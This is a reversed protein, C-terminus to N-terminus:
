SLSLLDPKEVVLNDHYNMQVAVAHDRANFSISDCDGLSPDCTAPAGFLSGFPPMSGPLPGTPRTLDERMAFRIVKVGLATRAKHNDLKRGTPLVRLRFTYRAKVVLAKADGAM